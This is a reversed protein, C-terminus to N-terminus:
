MTRRFRWFYSLSVPAREFIMHGRLRHVPSTINGNKIHDIRDETGFAIAGNEVGLFGFGQMLNYAITEMGGWDPPFFKCLQLIAMTRERNECDATSQLRAM